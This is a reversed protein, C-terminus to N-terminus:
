KLPLSLFRRVTLRSTKSSHWLATSYKDEKRLIPTLCFVRGLILCFIDRGMTLFSWMMICYDYLLVGEGKTPYGYFVEGYTKKDPPYRKNFPFGFLDYGVYDRPDNEPTIIEETTMIELKKLFRNKIIM